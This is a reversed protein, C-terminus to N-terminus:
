NALNNCLQNGNKLTFQKFFQWSAETASPGKADTFAAYAPDPTGGSWFHGLGEVVWREGIQCDNKDKWEFRQWKYGNPVQGSQNANPDPVFSKGSFEGSDILNNTGMWQDFAKRTCGGFAGPSEGLPDETGGISFLPMVRKYQGMAQVALNAYLPLANDPIGMCPFGRAYGGGANIGTAAYIDPYATSTVIAQFAGSSMGMIYVRDPNINYKDIVFKTMGAVADADGGLGRFNSTLEFGLAGRWCQGLGPVFMQSLTSNDPYLVVFREKDALPNLLNANLQQEPTTGCGHVMVYLPLKEDKSWSTPTYVLYNYKDQQGQFSGSEVKGPTDVSATPVGNLQGAQSSGESGVPQTKSAQPSLSGNSPRDDSSCASLGSIVATLIVISTSRFRKSFLFSSRLRFIM